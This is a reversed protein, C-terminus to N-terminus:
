LCLDVADIDEDFEDEERLLTLRLLCLGTEYTSGALKGLVLECRNKLFCWRDEDMSLGVKLSDILAGALEIMGLEAPNGILLLRFLVLVVETEKFSSYRLPFDLCPFVFYVEVAVM